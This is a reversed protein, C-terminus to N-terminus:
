DEVVTDALDIYLIGDLHDYEHCIARALLEEGEQRFIEGEEDMAEVVVHMPRAVEGVKGPVSLCGEPGSQVGSREVIVPNIYVKPGEGVDIIFLRKLMGVQPAALGVGQAEYMTEKMDEILTKIKDDVVKIERSKKRLIPDGEIRINRLAM